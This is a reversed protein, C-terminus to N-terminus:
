RPVLPILWEYTTLPEQRKSPEDGGKAQRQHVRGRQYCKHVPPMPLPVHEVKRTTLSRHCQLIDDHDKTKEDIVSSNTPHHRGDPPPVGDFLSDANLGGVDGRILLVLLRRAHVRPPECSVDVGARLTILVCDNLPINQKTNPM